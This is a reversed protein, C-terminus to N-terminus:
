RRSFRGHGESRVAPRARAAAAGTSADAPAAASRAARRPRAAGRRRVRGRGGHAPEPWPADIVAAGRAEVLAEAERKCARRSRRARDRGEAELRAAYPAIPDRARGTRTSSATPTAAARSLPPYTGRRSRIRASICCTTTTRTAACACPVRARHADPGLGARAREAAWAFAAAIADPDTGDITIGPIGYGAAKDAFVRSPRSIARGADLARDPQEPRLLDGAAPARRLPQDGRAVRRAVLRRRRHVVRRRPGLRRARVGDGHRRDDADRDDLPAAPPLIGWDFDGIHLDKGDMPPGAKGMQANLVM